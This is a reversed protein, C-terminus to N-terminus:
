LYVEKKDIKFKVVKDKYLSIKKAQKTTHNFSELFMFRDSSLPTGLGNAEYTWLPNFSSKRITGDAKIFAIGTLRGKRSEKICKLIADFTEVPSYFFGSISGDLEIEGYLIEMLEVALKKSSAEITQSRGDRRIFVFPFIEM